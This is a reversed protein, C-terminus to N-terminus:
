NVRLITKGKESTRYSVIVRGDISSIEDCSNAILASRLENGFKDKLNGAETELTRNLKYGDIYVQLDANVIIKGLKSSEKFRTNMFEQLSDQANPDIEPEFNDYILLMKEQETLNPDNWVARAPIIRASWFENVQEKIKAQVEPNARFEWERYFRGDVFYALIAKDLGTCLMQAQVQIIHGPLIGDAYRNVVHGLMNKCEVVCMESPSVYDLTCSLPLDKMWVNRRYREIRRLKIEKEINHVLVEDTPNTVDFHTFYRAIIPEMIEGSVSNINHPTSPTLRVKTWFLEVINTFNNMAFLTSVDSAGIAKHRGQLWEERNAYKTLIVNKHNPLKM